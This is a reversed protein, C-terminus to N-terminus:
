VSKQIYNCKKTQKEAVRKKKRIEAPTYNTQAKFVRSLHSRDVFGTREAIEPISIETDTLLKWIIELRRRLLYQRPTMGTESKFLHLFRTESLNVAKSLASISYQEIHINELIELAKRIRDDIAVPIQFGFFNQPIDLMLQGIIVYFSVKRREYDLEEFNDPIYKSKQLVLPETRPNEFPVGASFELFNHCFTQTVKASVLTFPPILVMIGPIMGIERDTFELVAGPTDNWYLLWYASLRNHLDWDNLMQKLGFKVVAMDPMSCKQHRAHAVFSYRNETM